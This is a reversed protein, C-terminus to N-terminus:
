SRGAISQLCRILLACVKSGDTDPQQSRNSFARSAQLVALAAIPLWLAAVTTSTVGDQVQVHISAEAEEIVCVIVRRHRHRGETSWGTAVARNGGGPIHKVYPSSACRFLANLQCPAVYESHKTRM